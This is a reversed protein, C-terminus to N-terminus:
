KLLAKGKNMWQFAHVGFVTGLPIALLMVGFTVYAAWAFYKKKLVLGILGLWSLLVIGIFFILFDVASGGTTLRIALGGTIIITFVLSTTAAKRLASESETPPSASDMSACHNQSPLPPPITTRPLPPPQRHAPSPAPLSPPSEPIRNPIQLVLGKPSTDVIFYLDTASFLRGNTLLNNDIKVDLLHIDRGGTFTLPLQRKRFPVYEEDEILAQVSKTVPTTGDLLFLEDIIKDCVIRAADDGEPTGNLCAAILAPACAAPNESLTSNNLLLHGQVIRGNEILTAYREKLERSAFVQNRGNFLGRVGNPLRKITCISFFCALYWVWTETHMHEYHRDFATSHVFAQAQARLASRDISPPKM